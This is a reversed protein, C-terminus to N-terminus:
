GNTHVVFQALQGKESQFLGLGGSFTVPGRGKDIVAPAYTAGKLGNTEWILDIQLLSQGLAIRVRVDARSPKPGGPEIPHM